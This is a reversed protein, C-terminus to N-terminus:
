SGQNGGPTSTVAEHVAKQLRCKCDNPLCEKPPSLEGKAEHERFLRAADQFDMVQRHFKGCMGCLKVHLKLGFKRLPPLEEYNGEALAKAVQRCMWM